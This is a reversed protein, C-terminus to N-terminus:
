TRRREYFLIYAEAEEVAKAEVPTVTEDDCKVWQNWQHGNKDPETGTLVYSIYHGSNLSGKHTVMGHLDYLAMDQLATLQEHAVAAAAHAANAANTAHARNTKSASSAINATAAAAAAAAAAATAATDAAAVTYQSLNLGELEFNVKTHIKRQSVADFRKLHIVFIDPAHSVLLTKNSLKNKKCSSHLCPVPPCPPPPLLFVAVAIGLVQVWWVSM